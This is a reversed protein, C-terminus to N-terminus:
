RRRGQLWSHFCVRVSDSVSILVLDISPWLPSPTAHRVSKQYTDANSDPMVKSVVCGKVSPHNEELVLGMPKQILAEVFQRTFKVKEADTNATSSSSLSFVKDPLGAPPNPLM